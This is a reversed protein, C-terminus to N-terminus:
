DLSEGGELEHRITEYLVALTGPPIERPDLGKLEICKRVARRARSLMMDVATASMDIRPHRGIDKTSMDLMVRLFWALRARPALQSLCAALAEAYRTRALRAEPQLVRLAVGERIAMTADPAVYRTQRRHLDVLGNRALTSFYSCVQGPHSQGSTWEPSSARLIFALAKESAIDCVDEPDIRSSQAHYRVYRSVAANAILWLAAVVRGRESDTPSTALARCLELVREPWRASTEPTPEPRM